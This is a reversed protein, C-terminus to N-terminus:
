LPPARNERPPPPAQLTQPLPAGARTSNSSTFVRTSARRPLLIDARRHVRPHHAPSKLTAPRDVEVVIDAVEEPDPSGDEAPHAAPDEEMEKLFEADLDEHRGLWADIKALRVTADTTPGIPPGPLAHVFAEHGFPPLAEPACKTCVDDSAGQARHTLCQAVTWCLLDLQAGRRVVPMQVSCVFVAMTRLPPSWGSAEVKRGSQSGRSVVLM